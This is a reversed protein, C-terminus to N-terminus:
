FGRASHSASRAKKNGAWGGQQRISRPVASVSGGSRDIRYRVEACIFPKVGEASKTGSSHTRAVIELPM